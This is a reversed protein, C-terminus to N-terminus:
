EMMQDLANTLTGSVAWVTSTNKLSTIMGHMGSDNIKYVM